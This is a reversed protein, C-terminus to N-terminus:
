ARRRAPARVGEGHRGAHLQEPDGRVQQRLLPRSSRRRADQRAAAQRGRRDGPRRHRLRLSRQHPRSQRDRDDAPRLLRAARDGAAVHIELVETLHWRNMEGTLADFHSLYSLKEEQAHRENIVHIVGHARGPKGDEGGFWRGTDEIWLVAGGDPTISYKVQYPVGAGDDRQTSNMVADYRAQATADDLVKAYGRGTAIAGRDGVKLVDAVNPGWALTDDGITWVYPVEGISALIATPDLVSDVHQPSASPQAFMPPESSSPPQIAFVDARSAPEPASFVDAPASASQPRGTPRIPNLPARDRIM